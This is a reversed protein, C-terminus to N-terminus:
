RSDVGVANERTAEIMDSIFTRPQTYKLYLVNKDVLHVETISPGDSPTHFKWQAWLVARPNINVEHGDETQYTWLM